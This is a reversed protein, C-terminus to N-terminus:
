AGDVYALAWSHAHRARVVYRNELRSFEQVSYGTAYRAPIGAHRLLLVTATAFYECHGSRSRLFFDELASFGRRRDSQFTSYQFNRQFYDAVTLLAQRPSQSTLGLEMVIRSIIPIDRQPVNLDTEDPPGGGSSGPVFLARYVVLGPGAGVKVAGLRNRQMAGIPLQEIRSVGYPLALIGRGGKLHAFVTMSQNPGSGRQLTWTTGDPEPQVADFGSDGSSWISSSYRNYSAEHLLFPVREGPMPEVRLVIEDSLKLIGIHGIATSSRYPDAEGGSMSDALWKSVEGTLMEQLNHLGIHGIYGLAGASALLSVWLVSSFIKPRATWLAWASLLFLGAYFWPARVNAASAALLVIAPYPYSPNVPTRSRDGTPAATRKSLFFLMSADITGATSYAHAVVVPLVTLPYLSFMVLLARMPEVTAMLYVVMAVLVLACLNRIRNLDDSSLECRWAILRSGELVCAIIVAGVLFGTHWGWFLLTAGLLLPPTKM